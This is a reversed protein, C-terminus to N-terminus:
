LYDCLPPCLSGFELTSSGNTITLTDGRFEVFNNDTGGSEILELVKIKSYVKFTTDAPVQFGEPYLIKRGDGLIVLKGGIINFMLLNSTIEAMWRLQSSSILVSIGAGGFENDASNRPIIEGLSESEAM